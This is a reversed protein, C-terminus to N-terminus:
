LTTFMEESSTAKNGAEDVSEVMFYYTTSSALGTLDFSHDTVYDDSSMSDTTSAEDLSEAAYTLLSTAAEDTQWSVTATTTGTLAEVVSIAPATTDEEDGEGEEEDGGEEDAEDDGDCAGLYSGTMLHARVAPSAVTITHAAGANGHPVKCITVMETGSATGNQNGNNNREGLGGGVCENLYEEGIDEPLEMGLRAMRKQLRNTVKQWRQCRREQAKQIKNQLKNRAKL